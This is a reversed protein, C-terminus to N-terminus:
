VGLGMYGLGMYGVGKFGLGKFGLGYLTRREPTWPNSTKLSLTPLLPPPPPPLSLELAM